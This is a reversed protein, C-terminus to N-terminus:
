GGRITTRAPAGTQHHPSRREEWRYLSALYVKTAEGAYWKALQEDCFWVPCGSSGGEWPHPLECHTQQLHRSLGMEVWVQAVLDVSDTAGIGPM